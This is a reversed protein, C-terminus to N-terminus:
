RGPLRARSANGPDCVELDDDVSLAIQQLQAQQVGRTGVDEVAGAPVRDLEARGEIRRRCIDGAVLDAQLQRERHPEVRAAHLLM